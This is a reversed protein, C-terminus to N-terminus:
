KGWGRMNGQDDWDNPDWLHFYMGLPKQAPTSKYMWGVPEYLFSFFNPWHGGKYLMLMPGVSAVYILFIAATWGLFRGLMHAPSDREESKEAATEM